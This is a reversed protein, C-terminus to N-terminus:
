KLNKLKNLFNYFHEKLLIQCNMINLETVRDTLLYSFSDGNLMLNKLYISSLRVNKKFILEIQENTCFKGNYQKQIIKLAKLNECNDSIEKLIELYNLNQFYNDISVYNLFDASRKVINIYFKTKAKANPPLGYKVNIEDDLEFQKVNSWSLKNGLRQWKM